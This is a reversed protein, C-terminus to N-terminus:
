KLDRQNKMLKLIQEGVKEWIFHSAVLQECKPPYHDKPKSLIENIANIIENKEYHVVRGACFEELYPIDCQYSVLSPTGCALAELSATSTEEYFSPILYFCDARQYAAVVDQEYLPGTFIFRDQLQHMKIKQQITDLYGDDRGVLMWKLHPNNKCAESFADVMLPTIKLQHIRGVSLLVQDQDKLKHKESFAVLDAPKKFKDVDIALPVIHTQETKSPVLKLYEQREHETQAFFGQANDLMKNLFLFDYVNKILTKIIGGSLPLCGYAAHFYPINHKILFPTAVANLYTRADSMIAYDFDKGHQYLYSKFDKPLFIKTKYALTNSINPFYKVSIGEIDKEFDPQVSSEDHVNTTYVTVQHGVKTLYKAIEFLIRPIGGYAWAPAFYPTIILIKM